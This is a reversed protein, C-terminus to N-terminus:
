SAGSNSPDLVVFAKSVKGHAGPVSPAVTVQYGGEGLRGLPATGDPPVPVGEAVVHGFEDRITAVLRRDRPKETVTLVPVEDTSWVDRMVVGLQESPGDQWVINQRSLIGDLLDLVSRTGQLHGHQEAVEHVERLREIEPLAALYPVTGDGGQNNGDIDFYPTITGAEVRATTLTPQRIGVVKYLPYEPAKPSNIAKHFATAEGLMVPDIRPCEVESLAAREGDPRAICKYTPLLEYMSPLSRAFNWLSEHLWPIHPGIGNALTNLASLSGRHPTGVTILARIYEAGGEQEAFWRAVLGGMSHGVLVLKADKMGPQERWRKLAPVVEKALRKGNYRCSLRWDYAFSILNPLVDADGPVEEVLHFRPSRLFRLLGDYGVIPSWLGPIVHLSDVLRGPRVDDPPREADLTAPLTLRRLSGGLKHIARALAGASVAWLPHGKADLLESGMIGPLVVVVDRVVTPDVATM